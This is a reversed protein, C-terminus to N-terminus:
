KQNPELAQGSARKAKIEKVAQEIRVYRDPTIPHSSPKDMSKVSVRALKRWFSKANEIPYGARASYYLGVYDAESEFKRAFTGKGFGAITNIVIKPVHGHTNHALEHGIILALEEDNAFTMMGTTVIISRGTAYANIAPSYRLKVAYGCSQTAPLERTEHGNDNRLTLTQMGNEDPAYVISSAAIPDGGSDIIVRGKLDAPLGSSVHVIAPSKFSPLHPQARLAKPLDKETLTYVGLDAATKQCFQTNAKLIPAALDNLRRFDAMYIKLAERSQTIKEAEVRQAPAEPLQTSLTACGANLGILAFILWIRM